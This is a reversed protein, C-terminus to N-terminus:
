IRVIENKRVVSKALYYLYEGKILSRAAVRGAEMPIRQHHFSLPDKKLGATGFSADLPPMDEARIEDFFRAPVGDDSFPFSFIGYGTGIENRVFEMSERYQMLMDQMSLNAFLQHDKSHAGIYFGQDSLNKLQQLSMYPKRIKLFTNFDLDVLKAIDDLEHRNRGSLELLFARVCKKNSEALHYRSQFLDTVAPSYNIKELRDIILSSKYRFFLDRNDVFDTNVFFGAPVGKEILLPAVVQYIESLGDDFSLFMAPKSRRRRTAPSMLTEPGVPEYHKLLFELDRKFRKLSRLPYVNEVHPMKEDSVAHYFPFILDQGSIRILLRQPIWGGTTGLILKLAQRM